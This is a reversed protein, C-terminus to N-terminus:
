LKFNYKWFSIVPKYYLPIWLSIHLVEEGATIDCSLDKLVLDLGPRYRTGYGDISIRGAKPWDKETETNSIQWDAQSLFHAIVYGFVGQFPVFFGRLYLSYHYM